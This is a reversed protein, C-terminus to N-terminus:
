WGGFLPHKLSDEDEPDLIFGHDLLWEKVWSFSGDENMIYPIQAADLYDPTYGGSYPSKKGTLVGILDRIQAELRYSAADDRYAGMVRLVILSRIEEENLM